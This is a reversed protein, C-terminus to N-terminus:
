KKTFQDFINVEEMHLMSKQNPVSKTLATVSQSLVKFFELINTDELKKVNARGTSFRELFYTDKIHDGMAITYVNMNTINVFRDFKSKAQIYEKHKKTLPIPYGEKDYDMTSPEGDTMIVMVPPHSVISKDQYIDIQDEINDIALNIAPCLPTNDGAEFVPFTQKRIDDFDVELNVGGKGFSIVSVDVHDCVKEDSLLAQHFDQLGKNLKDINNNYSMTGSTDVLITLPLKNGKRNDIGISKMRKRHLRELFDVSKTTEM